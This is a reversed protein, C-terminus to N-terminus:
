LEQRGAFGADLDHWYAIDEEGDIWCLYVERGDRLSPFDILGRDLDRLVIGRDSFAAVGARLEVFAEGVQRGASGGGNGPAGGVLVERAEADTLRDRAARLEALRDIVWPLTARAEEVTYHRRHRVGRNQQFPSVRPTGM